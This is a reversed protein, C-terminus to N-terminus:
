VQAFTAINDLMTKLPTRVHLNANLHQDSSDRFLWLFKLKLINKLSFIENSLTVVQSTKYKTKALNM